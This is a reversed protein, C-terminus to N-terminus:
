RSATGATLMLPLAAVAATHGRHRQPQGATAGADAAADGPTRLGIAMEPCTPLWDVHPGPEGTLFRSQSHGGDLRVQEGPLCSSVASARGRRPPAQQRFM